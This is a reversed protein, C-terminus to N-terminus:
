ELRIPALGAAALAANAKPLGTRLFDSWRALGQEVAEQRQGFGTLADATPAVDASEVAGQLRALSVALRLLSTPPAQSM